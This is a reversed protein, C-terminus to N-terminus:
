KEVEKEFSIPLRVRNRGDRKARYLARDAAEILSQRDIAMQPFLALGVSVTVRIKKGAYIFNHQEVLSRIKEGVVRVVDLDAQPIIVAFEEGGYRAIIETVRLGEKMVRCLEALIHDGAQHGYTDNIKKFHDIDVMALGVSYNYRKARLLENEIFIEFQRRNYVGTLSDTIAMEQLKQTLIINRVIHRLQGGFTSLFRYDETTFEPPNARNLFILGYNDDDIYLDYTMYSHVTCIHLLPNELEFDLIRQTRSANATGHFKPYFRELLEMIERERRTIDWSFGEDVLRRFESFVVPDFSSSVSGALIKEIDKPRKPSIDDGRFKTFIVRFYESHFYAVGDDAKLIQMLRTLLAEPLSTDVLFDEQTLQSVSALLSLEQVQRFLLREQFHMYEQFLRMKIEESKFLLLQNEILESAFQPASNTSALDNMTAFVDEGLRTVEGLRLELHLNKTGIRILTTLYYNLDDEVLSKIASSILDRLLRKGDQKGLPSLLKECRAYVQTTLRELNSKLYLAVELRDSSRINTSAQSQERM